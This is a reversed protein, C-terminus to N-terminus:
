NLMGRTLKKQHVYNQITTEKSITFIRSPLGAVFASSRFPQFVKIQFHGFPYVGMAGQKDTINIKLSGWFFGSHHDL